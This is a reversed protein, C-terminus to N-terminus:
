TVLAQRGDEALLNWAGRGDLCARGLFLNQKQPESVNSPAHCLRISAVCAPFLTRPRRSVSRPPPVASPEEMCVPHSCTAFGPVSPPHPSLCPFVEGLTLLLSHPLPRPEARPLRLESSAGPPPLGPASSAVPVVRLSPSFCRPAPDPEATRRAPSRVLLRVAPRRGPMFPHRLCSREPCPRHPGPVSGLRQCPARLCPSGQGEGRPVTRRRGGGLWPDTAQHGWAAQAPEGPFALIAEAVHLSESAPLHGEGLGACGGRPLAVCWSVGVLWQGSCM